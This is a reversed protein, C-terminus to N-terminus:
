SNITHFDKDVIVGVMGCYRLLDRDLYAPLANANVIKVIDGVNMSEAVTAETKRGGGDSTDGEQQM